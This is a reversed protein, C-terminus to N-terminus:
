SDFIKKMIERKKQEEKRTRMIAKKKKRKKLESPKEYHQKETYEKLRGDDDVRKKFKRLAQEVNGNRVEVKAGQVRVPESNKNSNNRM